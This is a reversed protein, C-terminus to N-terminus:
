EEVKSSRRRRRARGILIMDVVRWRYSLLSIAVSALLLGAGIVQTSLQSGSPNAMRTMSIGGILVFVVDIVVFVVTMHLSFQAWTLRGNRAGISRIARLSKSANWANVSWLVLGPLAALTWLLELLSVTAWPTM